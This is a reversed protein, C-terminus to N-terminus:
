ETSHITLPVLKVAITKGLAHAIDALKRLGNVRVDGNLSANLAATSCGSMGALDSRTLSQGAMEECLLETIWLIIKEQQLLRMMEPDEVSREIMSKTM